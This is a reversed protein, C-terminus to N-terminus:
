QPTYYVNLNISSLATFNNNVGILTTENPGVSYGLLFGHSGNLNCEYPFQGPQAVVGNILIDDDVSGCLYLYAPVGLPNTFAREGSKIPNCWTYNTNLQQVWTFDPPKTPSACFVSPTPAVPPPTVATVVGGKNQNQHGAQLSGYIAAGRDVVSSACVVCPLCGAVPSKLPVSSYLPVIEGNGYPSSFENPFFTVPTSATQITPMNLDTHSILTLSVM